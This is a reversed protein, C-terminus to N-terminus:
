ATANAGRLDIVKDEGWKKQYAVNAHKIVEDRGYGKGLGDLLSGMYSGIREGSKGDRFPDLRGAFPTWDGVGPASKPDKKYKKLADILKPMDDFIINGYGWKYFEHDKLHITDYDVGRCGSLFSEIVATSFDMGVAMDAGRSAEAPLMGWENSMRICRGTGIASELLPHIDQMNKIIAPKKSKIIIGLEPDGILWQLFSRYFNAVTKKSSHTNIGYNTDFLSIVFRAGRSRLIDAKSEFKQFIDYPYGTIVMHDNRNYNKKFYEAVRKSWLFFIHRSYAGMYFIESLYVESRQKGALFGPKNKKIDFAIAQSINWPFGEENIYMVGVNFEDYFSRWYHVERALRSCVGCIWSDVEDSVRAAGIPKGTYPPATWYDHGQGEIVRKTLAIWKFGMQEIQRIAERKVPEHTYRDPGDFYILVSKPDIGSGAYWLLDSRRTNDIGESFQCALTIPRASAGCRAMKRLLYAIRSDISSVADKVFSRVKPVLLSPQGAYFIIPNVLKLPIASFDWHEKLLVNLGTSPARVVADEASIDKGNDKYWRIVCAQQILPYIGTKVIEQFYILARPSPMHKAMEKFIHNSTIDPTIKLLHKIVEEELVWRLLLGDKNRMESLDYHLM